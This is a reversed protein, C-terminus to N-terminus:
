QESNYKQCQLAEHHMCFFLIDGLFLFYIAIFAKLLAQVPILIETTTVINVNIGRIALLVTRKKSGM